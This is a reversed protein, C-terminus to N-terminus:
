SQPFVAGMQSLFGAVDQSVPVAGVLIAQADPWGGYVASTTARDQVIEAGSLEVGAFLGRSHAYAVIEASMSADTGAQATRGVPGAAASSDAGLEFNSHFLKAMGRENKVIMVVGSEEFGAQIGASGGTITVFAPPSWGAATRCTVVGSGRRAGLIFGGSAMEPVVVVCRANRRQDFPMASGHAIERLVLSSQDLVERAHAREKGVAAAPSNAGRSCSALSLVVGLLFVWSLRRVVPKM